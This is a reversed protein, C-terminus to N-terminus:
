FPFISLFEHEVFLRLGMGGEDSRFEGFLGLAENHLLQIVARGHGLRYGTIEGSIAEIMMGDAVFGCLPCFSVNEHELIPEVKWNLGSCAPERECVALILLACVLVSAPLIKEHQSRRNFKTVPLPAIDIRRLAKAV